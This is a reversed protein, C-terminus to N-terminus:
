CRAEFLFRLSLPLREVGVRELIYVNVGEKPHFTGVTLTVAEHQNLRAGGSSYVDILDRQSNTFPPSSDLDTAFLGSM